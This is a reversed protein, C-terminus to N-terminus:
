EATTTAESLYRHYRRRLYALDHRNLGPCRGIVAEADQGPMLGIRCAPSDAGKRMAALPPRHKRHFPAIRAIGPVVTLNRDRMVAVRQGSGTGLDVM